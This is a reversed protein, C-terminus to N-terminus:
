PSRLDVQPGAALYTQSPKGKIENYMADQQRDAEPVWFHDFAFLSGSLFLGAM